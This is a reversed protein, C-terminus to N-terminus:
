FESDVLVEEGLAGYDPFPRKTTNGARMIRIGRIGAEIAAEMDADSDGYYIQIENALIAKAKFGTFIVPNINDLNFTKALLETVTETQTKQRATIFYITDGRNKHLEILRRACEKPLSFRDLGNNLENWFEEMALYASSRPSYKQQGYYYGATSFLVTDDVDLGVNMPPQDELSKAIDEITIWRVKGDKPGSPCGLYVLSVFILVFSLKRTMKRGGTEMSM